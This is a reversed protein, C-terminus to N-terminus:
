VAGRQTSVQLFDEGELLSEAQSQLLTGLLAYGTKLKLVM